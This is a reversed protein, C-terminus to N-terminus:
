KGTYMRRLFINASNITISSGGDITTDFVLQGSNAVFTAGTYFGFDVSILKTGASRFQLGRNVIYIPAGGPNIDLRIAADSNGAPTVIELDIRIMYWDWEKIPTILSTSTDWITQAVGNVVPLETLISLSSGDCVIQSVTNNVVLPYPSSTQGLVEYGKDDVIGTPNVSLVITNTGDTSTITTNTNNSSVTNVNTGNTRRIFASNTIVNDAQVDCKDTVSNTQTLRSLLPAVFLECNNGTSTDTSKLSTATTQQFLQQRGSVPDTYILENGTPTDCELECVRNSADTILIKNKTLSMDHTHESVGDTCTIKHEGAIYPIITKTSGNIIIRQSM